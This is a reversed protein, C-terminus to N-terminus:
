RPGGERPIIAAILKYCANMCPESLSITLLSEGVEDEGDPKELYRSEWLLDTVWLRYEIGNYQFSGQVRRRYGAETRDTFVSLIVKEVAILRLSTSMNRAQALPIRDNQGRTSSSGDLWLPLRRQAVPWLSRVDARGIRRWPQTPELLWNEGHPNRPCRRILPVEVIDLPRVLGGDHCRCEDELLEQDPRASVPRIWEGFHGDLWELGAVCRGGLKRSNALCVIRAITAM